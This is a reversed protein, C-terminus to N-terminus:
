PRGSKDTDGGAVTFREMKRKDAQDVRYGRPPCDCGVFWHVGAEDVTERIWKGCRGCIM